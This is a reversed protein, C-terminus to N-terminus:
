ARGRQRLWLRGWKLAVYRAGIWALRLGALGDRVGAKFVYARVFHWPPRILVDVVRARRGQEMSVQVFRTSYRDITGFHDELDRYPDHELLGDLRATPGDVSLVDHPDEGGWRGRDGRVLRLHWRPGFTGGRIPRGLWRNTRQVLFGQEPGDRLVAQQVQEALTPSTWEDADLFLVWPQSALTRAREKQAVHGPWDTQVVRAGLSRALTVTGDTSGSDLVLVERASPISRIAAEIRDAENLAIIAVTLPLQRM